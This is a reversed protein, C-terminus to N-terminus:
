QPLSGSRLWEVLETPTMVRVRDESPLERVSRVLKEDATCVVAPLVLYLLLIADVVQNSRKQKPAIFSPQMALRTWRVMHQAHLHLRAIAPHNPSLGLAQTAINLMRRTLDSVEAATLKTDEGRARAHEAIEAVPEVHWGEALSRLMAKTGAFPLDIQRGNSDRFRIPRSVDSRSEITRLNKWIAKAFLSRDRRNVGRAYPVLGGFAPLDNGGPAIPFEPDLVRDFADLVPRVREFDQDSGSEELWRLIEVMVGDALAVPHKRKLRRLDRLDLLDPQGSLPARVITTDLIIWEADGVPLSM